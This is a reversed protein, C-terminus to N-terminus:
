ERAFDVAAAKGARHGASTTTATEAETGGAKSSKSCISDSTGITKCWYTLAVVKEPANGAYQTMWHKFRYSLPYHNFYLDDVLGRSHEVDDELGLGDDKFDCLLRTLNPLQKILSLMDLLHLRAEQLRLDQINEWCPRTCIADSIEEYTCPESLSFFQTSPSILGVASKVFLANDSRTHFNSYDKRLKISCLQSYNGSAFVKHKQWADLLDTGFEIDLYELTNSNGRFLVDDDFIYRARWVLCRLAPFLKVSKDITIKKERWTDSHIDFDLKKMRPYVIPQGKDDVVLPKIIPLSYYLVRLSELTQASEKAIYHLLGGNIICSFELQTLKSCNQMFSYESTQRIPRPRFGRSTMYTLLILLLGGVNSKTRNFTPQMLYDQSISDHIDIKQLKPMSARISKAIWAYEETGPTKNISEYQKIFGAVDISLSCASPFVLSEPWTFLFDNRKEASPLECDDKFIVEVERVCSLLAPNAKVIDPMLPFGLKDEGSTASAVVISAKKHFHVLALTRWSHSIDYLVLWAKEPNDELPPSFYYMISEAVLLPLHQFISLAPM